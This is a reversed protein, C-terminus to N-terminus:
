QRSPYYTNESISDGMYEYGCITCKKGAYTIVTCSGDENKTYEKINIKKYSHTHDISYETHQMSNQISGDEFVIQYATEPGEAFSIESGKEFIDDDFDLFTQEVDISHGQSDEFESYYMKEDFIKNLNSYNVPTIREKVIATAIGITCLFGTFIIIKRYITLKTKTKM